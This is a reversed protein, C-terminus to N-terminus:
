ALIPIGNTIHIIIPNKSPMGLSNSSAANTSPQLLKPTKKRIITGTDILPIAVVAIKVNKVPNFSKKNANNIVIDPVLVTGTPNDSNKVSYLRCNPGIAAPATKNLRGIM